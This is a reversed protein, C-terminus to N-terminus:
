NWCRRMCSISTHSLTLLLIGWGRGWGGVESLRWHILCSHILSSYVLLVCLFFSGSYKILVGSHSTFALGRVQAYLPLRLSASIMATPIANSQTPPSTTFSDQVWARCCMPQISGRWSTQRERAAGLLLMPSPLVVSWTRFPTLKIGDCSWRAKRWEWSTCALHLFFIQSCPPYHTDNQM